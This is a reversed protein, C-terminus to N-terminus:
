SFAATEGLLAVSHEDSQVLNLKLILRCGEGIEPAKRIDVLVPQHDYSGREAANLDHQGHFV